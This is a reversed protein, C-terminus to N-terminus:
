KSPRPRLNLDKQFARYDAEAADQVRKRTKPDQVKAAILAKLKTAALAVDLSSLPEISM